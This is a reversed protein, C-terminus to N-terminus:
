RSNVVNYTVQFCSLAGALLQQRESMRVLADREESLIKDESAEVNSGEVNQSSSQGFFDLKLSSSASVDKLQWSLKLIPPYWSIILVTLNEPRPLPRLSRDDSPPPSSQVIGDELRYFSGLLQSIKQQEARATENLQQQHQDGGLLVDRTPQQECNNGTGQKSLLAAMQQQAETHKVVKSQISSSSLATLSSLCVVLVLAFLNSEAIM